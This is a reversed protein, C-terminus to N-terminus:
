QKIKNLIDEILKRNRGMLDGIIGLAFLNFSISLLATGIILSQIKGSGTNLIFYDYLFRVIPIIGILFFISGLGIFVRLPKYLAFTRIATLTSKRIHQRINTFLRSKRTPPNVTIPISATKIRKESAQITTDLTYSFKNTVNLELIANKSYARFGSVADKLQKEGSLVKIFHTGLWQLFKKTTSFHSVKSTQRDGIVIDAKRELIPRILNPIYKGPYQNDGDTNVLIDYDQEIAYQLGKSFSIGLGKTGINQIIHVGLEKAIVTTQDTSGDDIILIDISDVGPIEKPIESIVSTITNEENLCPIQVLLKM